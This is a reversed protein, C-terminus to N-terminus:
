HGCCDRGGGRREQQMQQRSKNNHKLKTHIRPSHNAPHPHLPPLAAFTEKPTVNERASQCVRSSSLSDCLAVSMLPEQRGESIPMLACCGPTSEEFCPPFCPRTPRPLLQLVHLCIVFSVVTWVAQPPLTLLHPRYIILGLRQLQIPSSKLLM